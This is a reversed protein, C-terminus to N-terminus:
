YHRDLPCHARQRKACRFPVEKPQVPSTGALDVQQPSNACKRGILCELAIEHLGPGCLVARVEGAGDKNAGQEDGDVFVKGLGPCPCRIFEM